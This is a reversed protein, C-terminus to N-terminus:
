IEIATSLAYQHHFNNLSEAILKETDKYIVEFGDVPLEAQKLHPNSAMVEHFAEHMAEQLEPLFSDIVLFSDHIPLCDINQAMLKLMVAQAIESDIFQYRVGADSKIAKAFVPHTKIL